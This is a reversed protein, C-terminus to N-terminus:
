LEEQGALLLKTPGCSLDTTIQPWRRGDANWGHSQSEDNDHSNGYGREDANM